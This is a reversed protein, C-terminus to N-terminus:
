NDLPFMLIRHSIDAGLQEAIHIMIPNNSYAIISACDKSAAYKQMANLDKEWQKRSIQEVTAATYILLNKESTSDDYIFRTTVVGYIRGEENETHGIWCELTGILIQSQINLMASPSEQIYPPLAAAICEKMEDWYKMVQEPLLKILSM